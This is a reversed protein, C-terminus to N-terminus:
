SKLFSLTQFHFFILSDVDNRQFVDISEVLCFFSHWSLYIFCQVLLFLILHSTVSHGHCGNICDSVFGPWHSARNDLTNGVWAQLGPNSLHASGVYLHISLVLRVFNHGSRWMCEAAQTHQCQVGWLLLLHFQFRSFVLFVFFLFICLSNDFFHNCSIEWFWLFFFVNSCLFCKTELVSMVLSSSWLTNYDLHWFYLVSVYCWYSYSPSVVSALCWIEGHCMEIKLFLQWSDQNPDRNSQFSVIVVAVRKLSVM